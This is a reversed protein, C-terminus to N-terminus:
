VVRGGMWTWSILLKVLEIPCSSLWKGGIQWGLQQRASAALRRDAARRGEADRGRRALILAWRSRFPPMGLRQSVIKPHVNARLMEAAHAHRLGQFTIPRIGARKVLRFFKKTFNDPNVPEGILQTFVLGRENRQHASVGERHRQQREANPSKSSSM